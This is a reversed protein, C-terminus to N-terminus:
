SPSWWSPPSFSVSSASGMIRMGFIVVIYLILSRLFSILM